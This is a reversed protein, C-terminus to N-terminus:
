LTAEAIIRDVAAVSGIREVVGVAVLIEIAAVANVRDITDEFRGWTPTTTATPWLSHRKLEDAYSFQHRRRRWTCVAREDTRVPQTVHHM